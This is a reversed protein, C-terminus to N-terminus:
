MLIPDLCIPNFYDSLEGLTQFSINASLIDKLQKTGLRGPECLKPISEPLGCVRLKVKGDKYATYPFKTPSSEQYIGPSLLKLSIVIHCLKKPIDSCLVIRTCIFSVHILMILSLMLDCM